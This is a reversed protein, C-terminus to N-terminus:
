LKIDIRIIKDKLSKYKEDNGKDVGEAIQHCIRCIWLGREPHIDDWHHYLLRRPAYGCITCCKDLPYLPKNNIHIVRKTKLRVQKKTNYDKKYINIETKHESQYQKCKAMHAERNRWYSRRDTARQRERNSQEKSLEVMKRDKCNLM